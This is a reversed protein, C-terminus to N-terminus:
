VPRRLTLTLVLRGTRPHQLVRCILEAGARRFALAHGVVAPRGDPGPPLTLLRAIPAALTEPLRRPLRDPDGFFGRVLARTARSWIDVRAGEGLVVYGVTRRPPEDAARLPSPWHRRGRDRGSTSRMDRHSQM